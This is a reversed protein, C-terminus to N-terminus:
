KTGLAKKAAEIEAEAAKIKKASEDEAAKIKKASEDEAAELEADSVDVTEVDKLSKIFGRAMLKEAQKETLTLQADVAIEGEKPSFYLGSKIVRHTPQKAM